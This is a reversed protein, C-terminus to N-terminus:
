IANQHSTNTGGRENPLIPRTCYYMAVNMITTTTSRPESQGVAELMRDQVTTSGNCYM